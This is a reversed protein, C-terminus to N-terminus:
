PAAVALRYPCVLSDSVALVALPAADPTAAVGLHTACLRCGLAMVGDQFFPKELTPDVRIQRMPCSMMQWSAAFTGVMELSPHNTIM